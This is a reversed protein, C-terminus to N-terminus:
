FQLRLGAYASHAQDWEDSVQGRYEAFLSLGNDFTASLGAGTRVFSREAHLHPVTM